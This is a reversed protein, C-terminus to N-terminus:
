DDDRECVFEWWCRTGTANCVCVPRMASCGYPPYPPYPPYGCYGALAAGGTVLSAALVLATVFRRM